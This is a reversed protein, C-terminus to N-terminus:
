ISLSSDCGQEERVGPCCERCPRPLIRIPSFMRSWEPKRFAAVSFVCHRRQMGAERLRTYASSCHILCVKERCTLLELSYGEDELVGPATSPRGRRLLTMRMWAHTEWFPSLVCTFCLTGSIAITCSPFPSCPSYKAREVTGSFLM